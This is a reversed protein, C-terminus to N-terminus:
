FSWAWSLPISVFSDGDCIEYKLGASFKHAGYNYFINPNIGFVNEAGDSDMDKLFSATIDAGIADTFNYEAFAALYLDYYSEAADEETSNDTDGAKIVTELALTLNDLSYEVAINFLKEGYVGFDESISLDEFGAECPKSYSFGARLLFDQEAFPKLTGFVGFEREDSDAVDKVSAGLTFLEEYAYEAGIGFNFNITDGDEDKSNLYNIDEDDDDGFPATVALKLGEIPTVALTVGDSGLLGTSFNDDYIPLYAGALEMDTSFGLTLIEIPRYEVFWDFDDAVWAFGFHRENFDDYAITFELGADLKDSTFAIAINEEIGAFDKTTEDEGDNYIKGKRISTVDSSLESSFEFTQAFSAVAFVLSAAFVACKKFNIKM